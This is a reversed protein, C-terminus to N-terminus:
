SRLALLAQLLMCCLRDRNRMQSKLTCISQAASCLVESSICASEGRGTMEHVHAVQHAAWSDGVNKGYSELAIAEAEEYEGCEELAYALEQM